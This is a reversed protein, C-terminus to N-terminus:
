SKSLSLIRSNIMHPSNFATTDGAKKGPVPFVRCSLSKDWRHACGIVDLLLAALEKTSVTGPVPVTDVGVGCVQSISLLDSISFSSSEALQVLRVDECLPLMLGNYGNTLQIGPLSQLSRTIAAAAALTGPGGFVTVEDLSEIAAAISGKEELSPNLSSDIGLYEVIVNDENNNESSAYTDIARRCIEQVPLIAKAFQTRFVTPVKRITRVEKELIHRALKGNELGIGVRVVVRNDNTTTTKISSSAARAVPFFPIHEKASAVCFRFNGLGNRIHAPPSPDDGGLRAITRITEACAEAMDVADVIEDNGVDDDFSADAVAASCSFRGSAAVARVCFQLQRPNTAPGLSCFEIGQQALASDLLGLIRDHHRHQSDDAETSRYAWEPFPNTAIRITQVTYGGELELRSKLRCGVSAAARVKDEVSRTSTSTSTTAQEDQPLPADFDSPELAVFLTITRVCFLHQQQQASPSM